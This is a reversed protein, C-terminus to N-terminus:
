PLGDQLSGLLCRNIVHDFVGLLKPYKFNRGVMKFYTIVHNANNALTKAINSATFVTPILSLQCRKLTDDPDQSNQFSCLNGM